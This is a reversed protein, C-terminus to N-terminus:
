INKLKKNNKIAKTEISTVKYTVGNSKIIDPIAISKVNKKAQVFSVEASSKTIKYTNGAM